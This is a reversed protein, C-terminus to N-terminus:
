ESTAGLAARAAAVGKPTLELRWHCQLAGESLRVPDHILGDRLCVDLGNSFAAYDLGGSAVAQFRAFGADIGAESISHRFATRLILAVPDTM